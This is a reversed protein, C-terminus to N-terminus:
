GLEPGYVTSESMTFLTLAYGRKPATDTLMLDPGAVVAQLLAAYLQAIQALACAAHVEGKVTRVSLM